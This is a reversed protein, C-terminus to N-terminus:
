RAAELIRFGVGAAGAPRGRTRCGDILVGRGSRCIEIGIVSGDADYNIRPTM